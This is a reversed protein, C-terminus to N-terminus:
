NELIKPNEDERMVNEKGTVQYLPEVGSTDVEQLRGIFDIISSLENAYHSKEESTLKIRALGSIHEIEEKGSFPM